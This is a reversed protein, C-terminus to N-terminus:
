KPKRFLYRTMFIGQGENSEVGTTVNYLEWGDTSYDNITQVLLNDNSAVNKFNIGSVSYLNLLDKGIDQGDTSSIIIRSRGIGAKIVSEISTFQKYQYTVPSTDQPKFAAMGLFFIAIIAAAFFLNVPAKM